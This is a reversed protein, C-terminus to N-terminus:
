VPVTLGIFSISIDIQFSLKMIEEIDCWQINPHKLPNSPKINESNFSLYFLLSWVNVSPSEINCRLLKPGVLPSYLQGLHKKIEDLPFHSNNFFDNYSTKYGCALDFGNGIVIKTGNNNSM